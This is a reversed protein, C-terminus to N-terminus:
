LLPLQPLQLQNPRTWQEALAPGMLMAGLAPPLQLLVLPLLPPLPLLLIPMLLLLAGLLLPHQQLELQQASTWRVPPLPVLVLVPVPPSLLRKLQLALLLLPPLLHYELLLQRPGAVM